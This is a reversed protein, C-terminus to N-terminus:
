SRTQFIMYSIRVVESLCHFTWFTSIWHAVKGNDNKIKWWVAGRYKKLEFMVYKGCFYGILTCIKLSEVARTLIWWIGWTVKLVFLWNKKLTETVRWNWSLNNKQVKKASVKYAIWASTKLSAVARMLIWFIGWTMKPVFLWIEKLSQM